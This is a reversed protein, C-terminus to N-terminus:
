KVQKFGMPTISFTSDVALVSAEAMAILQEDTAFISIDESDDLLWRKNMRYLNKYHQHLNGKRCDPINSGRWRSLNNLRTTYNGYAAQANKKLAEKFGEDFAQKTKKGKAAETSALRRSQWADSMVKPIPGCSKDHHTDMYVDGNPFVIARCKKTGCNRCRCCTYYTTGGRSTEISFERVNNNDEFVIM